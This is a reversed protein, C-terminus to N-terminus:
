KLTKIFEELDKIEIKKDLSEVYLESSYNFALLTIGKIIVRHPEIYSINTLDVNKISGNKFEPTTNCFDCIFEIKKRLEQEIEIEKTTIHVM